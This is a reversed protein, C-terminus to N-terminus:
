PGFAEFLEGVADVGFLFVGLQNCAIDIDRYVTRVEVSERAAVIEPSLPSAELYIASIIRWRRQDEPTRNECYQEYARLMADAHAILARTKATSNRISTLSIKGDPIMLDEWFAPDAESVAEEAHIRLAQLNRLLLKTNHLRADAREKVAQRRLRASEEIYAGLAAECAAATGTEVFVEMIADRLEAKKM